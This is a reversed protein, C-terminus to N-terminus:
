AAVRGDTADPGRRCLPTVTAIFDLDAPDLDDDMRTAREDQLRDFYDRDRYPRGTGGCSPCPGSTEGRPDPAAPNSFCEGDGGCFTCVLPTM